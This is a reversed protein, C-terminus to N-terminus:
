KYKMQVRDKEWANKVTSVWCKRLKSVDSCIAFCLVLKVCGGRTVEQHGTGETAGGGSCHTYRDRVPTVCQSDCDPIVKM